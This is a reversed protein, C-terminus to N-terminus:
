LQMKILNSIVNLPVITDKHGQTSIYHLLRSSDKDTVVALGSPQCFSRSLGEIFLQFGETAAKM